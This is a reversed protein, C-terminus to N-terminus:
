NAASELAEVVPQYEPLTGDLVPLPKSVPAEGELQISVDAIGGPAVPSTTLFAREGDGLGLAVLTHPAVVIETSDGGISVTVRAPESGENYLTGLLVGPEGAGNSILIFNETSVEGLEIGIGDSPDYVNSTTISAAM